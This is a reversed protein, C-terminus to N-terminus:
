PTSGPDAAQPRTTKRWKGSTTLRSGGLGIIAGVSVKVMWDGIILLNEQAPTLRDAPFPSLLALIGVGLVVLGFLTILLYLPHVGASM